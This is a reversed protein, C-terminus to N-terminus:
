YVPTACAKAQSLKKRKGRIYVYSLAGLGAAVMPLSGPEPVFSGDSFFVYTPNSPDFGPDGDFPQYITGNFGEDGFEPLVISNLYADSPPADTDGPSDFGDENDSYFILTGDGNFRLVDLVGCGCDDFLGVDGQVGAFPLNYTLVNPLGGPGPDNSSFGQGPVDNILSNGFEDVLIIIPAAAVATMSLVLLLALRVTPRNMTYLL